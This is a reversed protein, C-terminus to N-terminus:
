ASKDADRERELRREEALDELMPSGRFRGQWDRWSGVMKRLIITDGDVQVTLNTGQVLGLQDRIPKPIAIQGKSSLRATLDLM